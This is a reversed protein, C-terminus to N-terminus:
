RRKQIRASFDRNDRTYDWDDFGFGHQRGDANAIVATVRDFRRPRRLSVSGEGGRRLFETRAVVKGGVEEGKRAVLALGSRVGREVRLRLRIKAARTESVRFLRYAAHDLKFRKPRRRGPRLVGKRRVDPYAAADPFGAEGARWEATAAAFRVFERSFGRGGFDSIAADYAGVAFDPPDTLGSVEWAGRVVGPGYGAGADLWHNWVASGYVKLGRNAGFDTLPAGPASAFRPVYRLYDDIEPYVHQEIWVATTEFMWLDQIADYREQLLHNFEHAVTVRAADLPEEFSPFDTPDYDDDIVLYGHRSRGSQGPDPAEYGFLQDGLEKLYIDTRGPAAACGNGADLKPANWGLAEVEVSYATEAIDLITEVYDPVGDGDDVGDDDDLSPADPDGGDDVWTVCFEDNFAEGLPAGDTYGDGFQDAAADTPRALLSRARLRQASGLVPLADALQSLAASADRDPQGAAQPALAEEATELAVSAQEGSVTASDGAAAQASGAPLAALAAAVAV